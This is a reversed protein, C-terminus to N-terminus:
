VQQPRIPPRVNALWVVAICQFVWLILKPNVELYIVFLAGHLMLYGYLCYFGWSKRFFVGATGAILLCGMLAINAFFVPVPLPLLQIDAREAMFQSVNGIGEALAPEALLGGLQALMAAGVLLRVVGFLFGASLLCVSVTKKIM